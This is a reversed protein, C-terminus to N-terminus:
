RKPLGRRLHRRAIARVTRGAPVFEPWPTQSRHEAYLHRLERTCEYHWPKNVSPGEFHRLSPTELAEQLRGAGFAYVSWPYLYMSNMCNWRPHLPLRTPGLVKNLADQDPWGFIPDSDVACARLAATVRDARMLELNMLLVGSNFYERPDDVGAAHIRALDHTTFVNTVAGVHHGSLDLDFLPVISDVALVDVDLYLVREVDHLIDPLFIRYWMASPIYDWSPLGAIAEDSFGHFTIAGGLREVLETLGDLGRSPFEPGHLYHVHVSHGDTAQAVSHLM